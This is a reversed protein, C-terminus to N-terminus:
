LEISLMLLILPSLMIENFPSFTSYSATSQGDFQLLVISYRAASRLMVTFWNVKLLTSNM